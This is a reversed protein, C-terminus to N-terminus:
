PRIIHRVPPSKSKADLLVACWFTPQGYGGDGVNWVSACSHFRGAGRGGGGHTAARHELLAAPPLVSWIACDKTRSPNVLGHSSAVAAVIGFAESTTEAVRALPIVAALHRATVHPCWHVPAMLSSGSTRGVKKPTRPRRGFGTPAFLIIM